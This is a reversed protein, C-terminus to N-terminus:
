GDTIKDTGFTKRVAAELQDQRTKIWPSYHKETVKISQHGLLQAVQELPLGSLLLEVAFTDRWRHAHGNKVEALEYLRKFARQYDGVCSKKTGRGSWFYYNDTKIAGLADLVVPPLPVRVDTGTKATRLTLVGGKIRSMSLTVADTVRLGSYRLLLVLARLRVANKQNPYKACAALVRKFEDQSYPMTPPDDVKPPKILQAPNTPLWGSAHVFRFFNRLAELKKRASFNKNAWSERFTRLNEIDLEAIYRLGKDTAFAALQKFLLKYKYVSPPRLGRAEADRVFAETAEEITIRRAASGNERERVLETARTWSRTKLSARYYKGEVTGELWCPCNCRRYSRAKHPCGGSHRKYIALM